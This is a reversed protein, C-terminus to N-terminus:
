TKMQPVLNKGYAADWPTTAFQDIMFDLFDDHLFYGSTSHALVASIYENDIVGPQFSYDVRPSAGGLAFVLPGDGRKSNESENHAGDAAVASFVSVASGFLSSFSAKQDLLSKRIENGIQKAKIHLRVNKGPPTLYAPPPIDSSKAQQPLLLPEIRYAVPDSPNFINYLSGTPLDFPSATPLVVDQELHGLGRSANEQAKSVAHEYMADFVPHAGRLTLFMGLPSGLFVTVKPTFSITEKIAITLSPGWVGYRAEHASEKSGYAQLGVNKEDLPVQTRFSEDDTGQHGKLVSLIDWVIVSGLSHGILSCEGGSKAFEPHVKQFCRYLDNIQDTVTELVKQCFAPTLYLLVDFIIHNAITRLAPISQLSVSQLTKMVESSSDHLRTFWEIPLFEIRDPPRPLPQGDKKAKEVLRKWEKFQRKQVAMRTTNMQDVLSPLSVDERSFIAEGIGHVVFVLHRVPGLTIEEQEGDVTYQGYGRQITQPSSFWGSPTKQMCLVGGIQRIRAKSDDSLVIEEQLVSAIGRGLSSTAAVAKQYLAEIKESDQPNSVPHLLLEKSSKEERVFWIASCLERQYGRFFNFFIIKNILDATARGGEIYVTNIAESQGANLSECDCKRLPKWVVEDLSSESSSPSADQKGDETITSEVRKRRSLWVASPVPSLDEIGEWDPM